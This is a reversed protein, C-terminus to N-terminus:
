GRRRKVEELIENESMLQMGAALAKNRIAALRKGLETRPIFVDALGALRTQARANEKM